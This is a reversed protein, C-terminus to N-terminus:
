PLGHAAFVECAALYVVQADDFLTGNWDWVIHEIVILLM